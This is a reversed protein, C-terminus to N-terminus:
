ANILFKLIFFRVFRMYPTFVQLIDKYSDQDKARAYIVYKRKEIKYKLDLFLMYKTDNPYVFKSM